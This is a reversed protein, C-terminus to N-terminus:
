DRAKNGLGDIVVSGGCFVWGVFGWGGEKKSFNKASALCQAKSKGGMSNGVFPHIFMDCGGLGSEILDVTDVCIFIQKRCLRFGYCFGGHGFGLVASIIDGSGGFYKKQDKSHVFTARSM